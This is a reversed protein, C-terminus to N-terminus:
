GQSSNGATRQAADNHSEDAQADDAQADDSQSEAAPLMRSKAASVPPPLGKNLAAKLAAEFRGVFADIDKVLPPVYAFTLNLRGEVTAAGVWFCAGLGHQATAYHVHTLHPTQRVRGLNSVFTTQQRGHSVTASTAIWEPKFNVWDVLRMSDIPDGRDLMQALRMRVMNALPWFPESPAVRFMWSVSGILLGIADGSVPPSCSARLDVNADCSMWLPKGSPHTQAAAILMAASLAGQVTTKHRRCAAVLAGTTEESLNLTRLRTRRQSWTAEPDETLMVPPVFRRFAERVIFRLRAGWGLKGPLMDDLAPLMPRPSAPPLPKSAALLGCCTLLQRIFAVSSRGDELAHHFAMVLTLPQGRCAAVRWLPADTHTDFGADLWQHAIELPDEDRRSFDVTPNQQPMFRLTGQRDSRIHARLTPHKHQLHTLAARLHEDEIATDIAAIVVHTAGGFPNLWEFLREPGGLPRDAPVNTPTTPTLQTM